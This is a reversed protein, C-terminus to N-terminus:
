RIIEGTDPIYLIGSVLEKLCAEIKGRIDGTDSDENNYIITLMSDASQKGVSHSSEQLIVEIDEVINEGIDYWIDASFEEDVNSEVYVIPVSEAEVARVVYAVAVDLNDISTRLDELRIAKAKGDFFIYRQEAV